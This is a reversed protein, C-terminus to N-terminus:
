PVARIKECDNDHFYGEGILQILRKCDNINFRGIHADKPIKGLARGMMKYAVSRSLFADKGRWLIDFARHAQMRMERLEKNALDGLPKFDPSNDHVGVYADCPLCAWVKGHSITKYIVKSDILKAEGHCYPCRVIRIKKAKRKKNGM